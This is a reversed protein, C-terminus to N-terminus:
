IHGASRAIYTFVPLTHYLRKSLRNGPLVLHYQHIHLHRDHVAIFSCLGYAVKPMRERQGNGNNSHSGIRKGFIDPIRKFGSHVGM